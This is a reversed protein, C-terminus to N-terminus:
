CETSVGSSSHCSHGHSIVEESRPRPPILYDVASATRVRGRTPLRTRTWASGKGFRPGHGFGLGLGFGFGHGFGFGLGLGYGLGFGFGLGFRARRLGIERRQAPATVSEIQRMVYAPDLARRGSPKM